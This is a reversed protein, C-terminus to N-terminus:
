SLSITLNIKKHHTQGLKSRRYPNLQAFNGEDEELLIYESKINASLKM